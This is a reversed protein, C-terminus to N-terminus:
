PNEKTTSLLRFNIGGLALPNNYILLELLGVIIWLLPFIPYFVTDNILNQAEFFTSKGAKSFGKNM